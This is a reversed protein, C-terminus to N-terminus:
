RACRMPRRGSYSIRKTKGLYDAARLTGGRARLGAELRDRILADTTTIAEKAFRAGDGGQALFDSTTLTLPEGDDLPRGDDRILKITLKNGQCTAVARLGSVSFIGGKSTLNKALLAGLEKATTRVTVVLNDFPMAEFLPGYELEGAPLDARLGGGNLLAVDAGGTRLLDTFLNGLASEAAYDRKFRDALRVGIREAKRARARELDPAIARAVAADAEIARGEYTAPLDLKTPPHVRSAKVRKTASDITLDVRGFAKGQAWSQIVPVGHVLQAMAQHTHGAVVADVLGPALKPVVRMIEESSDCSALSSPEDLKKCAGGAHALVVVVTAGEARLAAAERAITKAPDSFDLGVLNAAATSRPTEESTVGVVGIRLGRRTVVASPRVNKWAVPARTAADIVNAALFPFPAEAARARLAGRPDDAASRPTALPGVPGFDFEHNGIAVADYGLAAYARVIAAGEGLNSELTGQFVDGADVLLVEGHSDRARDRLASVFGGLRPLSELHGHLDSTGIITLELDRVSAAAQAVPTSVTSGAAPAASPDEPKSCGLWAAPALLAALALPVFARAARRPHPM